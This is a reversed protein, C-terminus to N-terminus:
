MTNFLNNLKLVTDIQKELLYTDTGKLFEFETIISNGCNKDYDVLAQLYTICCLELTLNELEDLQKRKIEAM